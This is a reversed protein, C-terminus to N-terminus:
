FKIPCQDIYPGVMKLAQSCKGFASKCERFKEGFSTSDGWPKKTELQVTGPNCNAPPKPINEFCTCDNSELRLCDQNTLSDLINFFHFNM